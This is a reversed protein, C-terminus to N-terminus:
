LIAPAARVAMASPSSNAPLPSCSPDDPSACWPLDEDRQPALDPWALPAPATVPATALLPAFCVALSSSPSPESERAGSVSQETCMATLAYSPTASSFACLLTGTAALRGMM